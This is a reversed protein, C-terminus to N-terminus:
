GQLTDELYIPILTNVELDIPILVKEVKLLSLEEKVFEELITTKESASLSL